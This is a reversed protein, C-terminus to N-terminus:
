RPCPVLHVGVAQLIGLVAPTDVDGLGHSRGTEGSLPGGSGVFACLSQRLLFTGQLVLCGYSPAVVGVLEEVTRAVREAGAMLHHRAQLWGIVGINGVIGRVRLPLSMPAVHYQSGVSHATSTM